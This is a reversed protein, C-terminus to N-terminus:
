GNRVLTGRLCWQVGASPWPDAITSTRGGSLGGDEREDDLKQRRGAEIIVDDPDFGLHPKGGMGHAMAIGMDLGLERARAAARHLAEEGGRPNGIVRDLEDADWPIAGTRIAERDVPAEPVCRNMKV